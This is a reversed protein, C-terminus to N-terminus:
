CQHTAFSGAKVYDGWRWFKLAISHKSTQEVSAKAPLFLNPAMTQRTSKDTAVINQHFILTKRTCVWTMQDHTNQSRGKWNRSGQNRELGSNNKSISQISNSYLHHFSFDKRTGCGLSLEKLKEENLIVNPSTDYLTKTM